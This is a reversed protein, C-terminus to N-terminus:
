QLLSVLGLLTVLFGSLLRLDVRYSMATLLSNFQAGKRVKLKCPCLFVFFEHLVVKFPHSAKRFFHQHPRGLDIHVSYFIGGELWLHFRRGEDGRNINAMDFVGVWNFYWCSVSSSGRWTHSHLRRHLKPRKLRASFPQCLRNHLALM